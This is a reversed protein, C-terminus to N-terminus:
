GALEALAARGPDLVPRRLALAPGEGVSNRNQAAKEDKGEAKQDAGTEPPDVAGGGRQVRRVIQVQRGHRGGILREPFRRGMEDGDLGPQVLTMVLGGVPQAGMEAGIDGLRAIGALEALARDHDERFMDAGPQDGGAGRVGAEGGVARGARHGM